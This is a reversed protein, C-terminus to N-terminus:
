TKLKFGLWQTKMCGKCMLNLGNSDRKNTGMCQAQAAQPKSM